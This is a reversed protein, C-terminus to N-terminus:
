QWGVSYGDEQSNGYRWIGSWSRRSLRITRRSASPCNGQQFFHNMTWPDFWPLWSTTPAPRAECSWCGFLRRRQFALV